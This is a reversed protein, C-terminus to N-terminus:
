RGGMILPKNQAAREQDILGVLEKAIDRLDSTSRAMVGDLNITINGGGGGQNIMKDLKSLPVVAEPERGEGIMALTPASVVGGEALQPVNLESLKGVNVKPIKNIVDIAANISRIFNNIINVAGRLVANIVNKFSSGIANGVSTGVDKFKGVITNWINSFFNGVGSFVSKVANWASAASTKLWEWFIGLAAKVTDWQTIILGIAATVPGLLIGLLLPWNAKVWEIVNSVATTIASWAAAATTKIWNWFTSLWSKLTDWNRVILYVAATVAAIILGIPGLALLMGAAIKAGTILSQIGLMIIAPTLFIAIVTGVQKILEGNESLFKTAASVAKSLKAFPGSPDVQGTVADVGLIGLGVNTIAEKLNSMRGNFTESQKIAGQFAFGGEKTVDSMVTLLDQSTIAGAELADALSGFGKKGALETLPKRLAGAGSNLIQYFDQTQLKGRAITQTLPLTLQGLDAGTAGAIDATNKLIGGLDEVSVGAALYNRGAAQIDKNEFATKKGLEYLDTMVSNTDSVNGTLSEFSARLSQLESASNIFTKTIIAGSAVIAATAVAAGNSWAKGSKSSANETSKEIQSNTKEIDSAGKKYQSTDIKAILEITGITTAM